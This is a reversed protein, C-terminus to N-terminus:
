FTAIPIFTGAYDFDFTYNMMKDNRALKRDINKNNLLIRTNSTGSCLYIDPSVLLDEIIRRFNGDVWGTNVSFSTKTNMNYVRREGDEWSTYESRETQYRPKISGTCDFYEWWGFRNIFGITYADDWVCVVDYEYTVAQEAYDLDIYLKNANGIDYPPKVNITSFGITSPTIAVSQNGGIDTRYTVETVATDRITLLQFGLPSYQKRISAYNIDNTDGSQFIANNFTQDEIGGNVIFRVNMFETTDYAVPTASPFNPTMRIKDELFPSVNISLNEAVGYNYSKKLITYEPDPPLAGGIPYTRIDIELETANKTIYWPSRAPIRAM